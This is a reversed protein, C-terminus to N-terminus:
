FKCAFGLRHPRTTLVDSQWAPPRHNLDLIRGRSFSAPPSLSRSSHQGYVGAFTDFLYRLDTRKVREEAANKITTNFRLIVKPRLSQARSTQESPTGAMGPTVNATSPHNPGSPNQHTGSKNRASVVKRQLADPSYWKQRQHTGSRTKTLVVQVHSSYWKQMQHTDSRSRALVVKTEQSDWKQNQHAGSRTRTLVVKM